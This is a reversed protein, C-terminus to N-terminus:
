ILFGGNVGLVQGTIFGSAPSSLYYIAEAAEEPTGIRCLPTEEALGKLTDEGHIANMGTAIVGPSVCNVCINSPGLEKALAKTLGIVAAKAASYHVECSGGTEGWVSSLNVIKGSQERIMSPLVAQCCHFMGKVNVDFMRDWDDETLDTFLKQQAIGANNVLVDIRGFRKQVEAAANKVQVADSVDCALPLCPCGALEQALLGAEAKGTLYTFAVNWGREAFLRVAAAGIGRSGGTIWVTQM